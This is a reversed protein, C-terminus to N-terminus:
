LLSRARKLFDRSRHRYTYNELVRRQGQAAIERRRDDHSLYFEIKERLEDPSRFTELEEGVAFEEELCPRYETLLFGGCALIDYVRVTPADMCQVHFINLNILSNSYIWPTEKWYAPAHGTYADPFTGPIDTSAWGPDGYIRLGYPEAIRLYDLRLLMSSYEELLRLLSARSLQPSRLPLSELESHLRVPDRGRWESILREIIGRLPKLVSGMAFAFEQMRQLGSSGVFSITPATAGALWAQPPGDAFSTATRLTEVPVDTMPRLREAHHPDFTLLLDALALYDPSLDFRQPNDYFWVIRKVGAEGMAKLEEPEFGSLNFGTVIDPIYGCSEQWSSESSVFEALPKSRRLIEVESGNWELGDQFGQLFDDFSRSYLVVREGTRSQEPAKENGLIRLKQESSSAIAKTKDVFECFLHNATEDMRSGPIVDLGSRYISPYQELINLAQGNAEEGCVIFVNRSRLLRSWDVNLLSEWFVEWRDEHILMRCRSAEQQFRGILELPIYGLGSRYVVILRHEMLHITKVYDRAQTVPDNPDHLFVGSRADRCTPFGTKSPLSLFRSSQKRNRLGKRAEWLATAIPEFRDTLLALNRKAIQDIPPPTPDPM